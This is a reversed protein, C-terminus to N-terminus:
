NRFPTSTTPNFAASGNLISGKLTALFAWCMVGDLYGHVLMLTKYTKLHDFPDKSGDFSEMLPIVFKKPFPHSMITMSFPHDTRQVLAEVTSPTKERLTEIVTNLQDQM